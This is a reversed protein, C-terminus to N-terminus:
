ESSEGKKPISNVDIMAIWRSVIILNYKAILMAKNNTYVIIEFYIHDWNIRLMNNCILEKLEETPTIAFSHHGISEDMYRMQLYNGIVMGKHHHEKYNEKFDFSKHESFFKNFPHVGDLITRKKNDTFFGM